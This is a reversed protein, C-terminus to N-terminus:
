SKTKRATTRKALRPRTWITIGLGFVLLIIPALWLPMTMSNFPPSFLIYDGYRQQFYDLIKEDSQDNTIQERILSRITIAFDSDSDDITQNQCRLCRLKAALARARAEDEPNSLQEEPLIAHAPLLVASFLSGSLSLVMIVILALMSRPILSNMM